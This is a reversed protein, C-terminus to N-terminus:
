GREERAFRACHREVAGFVDLVGEAPFPGDHRRLMDEIAPARGPDGAEVAALLRAREDLLALLIRDLNRLQNRLPAHM